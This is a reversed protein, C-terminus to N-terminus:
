VSCDISDLEKLFNLAIADSGIFKAWIETKKKFIEWFIWYVQVHSTARIVEVTWTSSEFNFKLKSSSLVLVSCFM